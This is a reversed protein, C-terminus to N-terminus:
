HRQNSGEVRLGPGMGADIGPAGGEIRPILSSRGQELLDGGAPLMVCNLLITWFRRSKVVVVSAKGRM